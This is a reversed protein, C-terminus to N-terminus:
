DNNPYLAIRESRYVLDFQGWAFAGTSLSNRFRVEAEFVIEGGETVETIFARLDAGLVIGPMILRDGAVSLDDVDSIIPSYYEAGREGGLVWVQRVTMADPDIEYEM